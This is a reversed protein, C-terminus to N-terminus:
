RMMCSQTHTTLLPAHATEGMDPLCHPDIQGSLTWGCLSNLLSSVWVHMGDDQQEKTDAKGAQKGGRKRQGEEEEKEAEEEENGMIAATNGRMM